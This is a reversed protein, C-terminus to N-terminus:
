VASKNMTYMKLTVVVDHTTSLPNISLYLQQETRNWGYTVDKCHIKNFNVHFNITYQADNKERIVWHLLDAVIQFLLDRPGLKKKFNSLDNM